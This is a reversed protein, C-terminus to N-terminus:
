PELQTREREVVGGLVRLIHKATDLCPPVGHGLAHMAALNAWAEVFASAEGGGGAVRSARDAVRSAEYAASGGGSSSSSSSGSSSGSSSSSGSGGGGATLASKELASGPLQLHDASLNEPAEAVEAARTYWSFAAAHDQPQGLLGGYAVAGLCCLAGPHDAEAAARRWLVLAATHDKLFLVSLAGVFACAHGVFCLM